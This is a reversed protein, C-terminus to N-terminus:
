RRRCRSRRRVSWGLRRLGGGARTPAKAPHLRHPEAYYVHILQSTVDYKKDAPVKVYFWGTAKLSDGVLLQGPANTRTSKFPRYKGKKTKARLLIIKKNKAGQM